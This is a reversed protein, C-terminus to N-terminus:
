YCKKFENISTYFDKMSKIKSDTEFKNIRGKLYEMKKMVNKSTQLTLKNLNEGNM